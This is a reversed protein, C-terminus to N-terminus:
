GRVYFRCLQKYISGHFKAYSYCRQLQPRSSNPKTHFFQAEKETLKEANEKIYLIYFAVLTNSCLEMDEPMNKVYGQHKIM